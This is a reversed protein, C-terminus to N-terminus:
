KEEQILKEGANFKIVETMNLGEKDAELLIKIFEKVDEERYFEEGFYTDKLIIRKKDLSEETM